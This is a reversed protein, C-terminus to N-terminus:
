QWPSMRCPTTCTSRTGEAVRSGTRGQRGLTIRRHSGRDSRRMPASLPWSSTMLARATLESPVFSSEPQEPSISKGRCLPVNDRWENGEKHRREGRGEGRGRGSGRESGGDREAGRWDCVITQLQPVQALLATYRCIGAVRIAHPSEPCIWLEPTGEGAAAVACYIQGIEGDACIRSAALEHQLHPNITPLTWLWQFLIFVGNTACM